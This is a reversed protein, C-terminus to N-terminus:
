AAACKTHVREITCNFKFPAEDYYDFSVPSGPAIAIDLCENTLHWEPDVSTGVKASRDNDWARLSV